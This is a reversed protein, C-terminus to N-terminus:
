EEDDVEDGDEDCVPESTFLVTLTKGYSGLGIVDEKMEIEPADDFWDDLSTWGGDRNGSSINSSVKNFKATVSRGPLLTGKRIWRLARIHRLPESLFCWDITTGSSLMVAVPDEAFQAYRIATATISTKCANALHEIAPFGEGAGRLVPMFLFEPMLLTKAFADAQRETPDSSLFGSRSLHVTKGDAFLADFHGPLFYHGLEHAISFRIFGESKIHTAYGIGFANGVYMLFGSVGTDNSVKPQVEIDASKAIAFPCVPLQTFNGNKVVEEAAQEVETEELSRRM